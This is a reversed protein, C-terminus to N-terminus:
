EDDIVEILRFKYSAREFPDLPLVEESKYRFKCPVKITEEEKEWVRGMAVAREKLIQGAKEFSEGDIIKPYIDNGLYKKNTLIRKVSSSNKKVGEFTYSNNEAITKEYHAKQTKLSVLQAEEDTSVRAYAAVRLISGEKQNAEIKTIKKM